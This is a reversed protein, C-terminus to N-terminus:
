LKKVIELGVKVARISNMFQIALEAEMKHRNIKRILGEHGVLPGNTVIVKNGEIFGQSMEICRENNLVGQLFEQEEQKIEFSSDLNSQDYRLVKLAKETIAILPKVRCYLDLGSMETELFIYGPVCRKTEVLVQRARRFRTEYMPVFPKLGEICWYRSIFDVLKHEYGTMVFMAYWNVDSSRGCGDFFFSIEFGWWNSVSVGVESREHIMQLKACKQSVCCKRSASV